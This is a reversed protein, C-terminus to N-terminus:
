FRELSLGSLRPVWRSFFGTSSELLWLRMVAAVMLAICIPTNRVIEWNRRCKLVLAAIFALFLSFGIVGQERLWEMYINHPHLSHREAEWPNEGLLGRVIMYIWLLFLCRVWLEKTWAWDKEIYSHMLFLAAIVSMAIDQVAGGLLRLFPFLVTICGPIKLIAKIM